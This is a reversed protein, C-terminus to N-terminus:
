APDMLPVPGSSTSTVLVASFLERARMTCMTSASCDRLPGPWRSASLMALFSTGPMRMAAARIMAKPKMTPSGSNHNSRASTTRTAADGHAKAIETGTM